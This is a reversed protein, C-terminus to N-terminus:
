GLDMRIVEFGGLIDVYFGEVRDTAAMKNRFFGIPVLVMEQVLKKELEQYIQLRQQRRVEARAKVIQADIEPNSYGTHNDSSGTRYLPGIFWDASPFEAVWGLRFVEQSESDLTDFFSTLDRPNLTVALGAEALDSQIAKAVQENVTGEPYDFRLPTPQGTPFIEKILRKAEELDRKCAKGCIEDIHGPMGEPLLGSAPTLVDEYVRFAMENRDLALSVAQRLRVDAVKRLNFGLYVGAALPSFGEAGFESRALPIKGPPVEAIDVAKQMLDKWQESGSGYLLFQVRGISPAKPRFARFTEIAFDEGPKVPGSLRYPGNGVPNDKFRAPDAEFAAKPIPATAPHTLVSPFEVWPEVLRFELTREDIVKLGELQQSTGTGHVAEHGLVLDLLFSLDSATQKAALRNLSFEVDTATVPKGDHFKANPRLHFVWRAGGDHMEWKSAAGPELELTVPNFGVLPQYIQRAVLVAAPDRLAVPDLNTVPRIAIRLPERQTDTAGPGCATLVVMWAVGAALTSRLRM